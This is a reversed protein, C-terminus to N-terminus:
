GQDETNQVQTITWAKYEWSCLLIPPIPRLPQAVKM